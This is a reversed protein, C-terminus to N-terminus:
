TWYLKYKQNKLGFVESKYQLSDHSVNSIIKENNTIDTTKIDYVCRYDFIHFFKRWCDTIVKDLIFDVEDNEPNFYEYEEVINSENM